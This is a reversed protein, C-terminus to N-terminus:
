GPLLQARAMSNVGDAFVVLDSDVVTGNSFSVTVPSKNPDSWQTMEHGLHYDGPKMCSLLQRYVTNWSSFRYGHATEHLVSNDRALYRIRSTSIAIENIDVNAVDTLYRSTEPLLGIGAGRQALEHPSREYVQVAHGLDRLVLAATLGGISGGVVSIKM